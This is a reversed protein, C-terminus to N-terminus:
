ADPSIVQAQLYNTEHLASKIHHILFQLDIRHHASIWDASNLAIHLEGELEALLDYLATM